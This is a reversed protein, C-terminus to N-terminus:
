DHQVENRYREIDRRQENVVTILEKICLTLETIEERLRLYLWLLVGTVLAPYGFERFLSAIDM